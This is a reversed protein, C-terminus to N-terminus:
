LQDRRTGALFAHWEASMFSLHGQDPHKSDRVATTAPATAVEVCAEANGSYSSKRFHLTEVPVM